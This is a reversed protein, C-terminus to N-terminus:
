GSYRKYIFYGAIAVGALLLWMVVGGGSSSPAGGGFDGSVPTYGYAQSQLPASTTTNGFLRPIADLLLEIPDKKATTTGTTGTTTKDPIFPLEFFDEEKPEFTKLPPAPPAPPAPPPAIIDALTPLGVTVLYGRAAERISTGYRRAADVAYQGGRGVPSGTLYTDYAEKIDSVRNKGLYKDSDRLGSLVSIDFRQTPEPAPAPAPTSVGALSIGSGGGGGFDLRSVSGGGNGNTLFLDNRAAM